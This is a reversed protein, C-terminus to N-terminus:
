EIDKLQEIRQKTIMMGIQDPSFQPYAAKGFEMWADRFKIWVRETDRIGGVAVEGPMRTADNNEKSREAILQRYDANLKADASQYDAVSVNPLGGKSLRQLNALFQDHVKAEAEISFAARGTGSLDTEYRGRAQAFAQEAKQLAQFTQKAAAPWNASIAKIKQERKAKALEEGIEACAGEMLGSTADDCLDFNAATSHSDRMHELHGLRGEMEADAAWTNECAFRIALDYNRPAGLGNAYLMSLVGPGYLPNGIDTRPHARQYYGCQLAADYDRSGDFGYYLRASDCNRLENEPKPKPFQPVVSPASIARSCVEKWNKESPFSTQGASAAGALALMLVM